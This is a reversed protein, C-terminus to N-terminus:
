RALHRRWELFAEKEQLDLQKTTMEKVWRPRRPVRLRSKNEEHRRLIANEEQQSFSADSLPNEGSKIVITNQKEIQCNLVVVEVTIYLNGATFDTGALQATNLFEDLDNEQTVSKM